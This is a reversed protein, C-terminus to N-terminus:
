RIGYRRSRHRRVGQKVIRFARPSNSPRLPRWSPLMAGRASIRQKPSIEHMLRYDYGRRARPDALSEPAREIVGM